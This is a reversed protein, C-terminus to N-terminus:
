FDLLRALGAASSSEDNKGGDQGPGFDHKRHEVAHDVDRGADKRRQGAQEAGGCQESADHRLFAQRQTLSGQIGRDACGPNDSQRDSDQDLGPFATLFPGVPCQPTHVIRLPSVM